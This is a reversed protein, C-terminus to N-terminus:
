YLLLLQTRNLEEKLENTLSQVDKRDAVKSTDTALLKELIKNEEM